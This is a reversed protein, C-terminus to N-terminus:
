GALDDKSQHLEGNPLMLGAAPQQIKGRHRRRRRGDCSREAGEPLKLVRTQEM